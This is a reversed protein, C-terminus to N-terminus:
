GCRGTASISASPRASPALGARQGPHPRQMRDGRGEAELGFLGIDHFEGDVADLGALGGKAVAEHRRRRNGHAAELIILCFQEIGLDHEIRSRRLSM